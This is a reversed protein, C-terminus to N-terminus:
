AARVELSKKSFLGRSKVCIDILRPFSQVRKGRDMVRGLTAYFSMLLSHLIYVWLEIRRQMLIKGDTDGLLVGFLALRYEHLEIATGLDRRVTDIYTQLLTDNM